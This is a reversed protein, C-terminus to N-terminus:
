ALLAAAAAVLPALDAGSTNLCLDYRHPDGWIEGTYFNYYKARERDMRQITQRIERESRGPADAPTAALCRRVRSELDAYLFLRLPSRDRLIYDACRGVIICSGLDALKLVAERQAQYVSAAPMSAYGDVIAPGHGTALLPLVPQPKREVVRQVYEESFSTRAAIDAIVARDHYPIGLRKSLLAAFEIGGSGYERAITIIKDM